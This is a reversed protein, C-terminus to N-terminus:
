NQFDSCGKQFKKDKTKPPLKHVENIMKSMKAIITTSRITYNEKVITHM